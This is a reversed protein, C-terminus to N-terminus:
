NMAEWDTTYRYVAGDLELCLELLKGLVMTLFVLWRCSLSVLM